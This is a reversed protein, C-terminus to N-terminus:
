RSRVPAANRRAARPSLAPLTSTALPVPSTLPPVVLTPFAVAVPRARLADAHPLVARHRHPRLDARPSAAAPQGALAVPADDAHAATERLRELITSVACRRLDAAIVTGGRGALRPEVLVAPELGLARLSRQWPEPRDTVLFAHDVGPTTVLRAAIRAILQAAGTSPAQHITAVTWDRFVLARADPASSPEFWGISRLHVACADLVPDAHSAHGGADLAISCLYGQVEGSADRLVDFAAGEDDLWRAAAAATAAGVGSALEFIAARDDLQVPTVRLVPGAVRLIMHERVAALERDVFLRDLVWREPERAIAIRRDAFRRAINRARAWVAPAREALERDCARRFLTHPRLGEPAHEVISLRALWAFADRAAGPEEFALELLEYPATRAAALVAIALRHADTDRRAYFSASGDAAIGTGAVTTSMAADAATALMAPIGEALALIEDAVRAEIGRLELYRRADADSVPALAIHPDDGRWAPAAARDAVVVTLQAPLAPLFREVFWSEIARLPVFDDLLLVRRGSADATRALEDCIARLVTPTLAEHPGAWYYPVGQARCRLALQALLETKGLGSAGSVWVRRAGADVAAVLAALERERGM